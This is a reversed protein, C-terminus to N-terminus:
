LVGRQELEAQMKSIRANLGAAVIAMGVVYVLAIVLVIQEGTVPRGAM